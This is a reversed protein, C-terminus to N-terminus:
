TEGLIKVPIRGHATNVLHSGAGQNPLRTGGEGYAPTLYRLSSGRTQDHM